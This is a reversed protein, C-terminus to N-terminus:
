QGGSTGGVILKGDITVSINGDACDLELEKASEPITAVEVGDILVRDKEVLVIRNGYFTM